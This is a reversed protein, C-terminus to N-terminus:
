QQSYYPIRIKFTSGKKIESKVEITGKHAMVVAKVYNLGLGFGKTDHLNGTSLRFFKDFIRKQTERAMGIGNDEVDIILSGSKNYTSVKIDPADPSYKNANDLLNNIVNGFHVEDGYIMHNEATGNWTLSGHRETIQIRFRDILKGIVDHADFVGPNMKFDEKDMLAANLVKQVQLNMRNNEEKIVSTYHKLKDKNELVRPDNIADTALSITAIPTKFEHTMNNIFDNKMESLKKQKLLTYITFGCSIIIILMFALLGPLIMGISRIIFSVKGPFYVSLFYNQPPMDDPFLKVMFPTSRLMSTDIGANAFELAGTQKNLVAAQYSLDIGRQKLEHNLFSDILHQSLRKHIDRNKNIANMILKKLMRNYINAKAMMIKGSDSPFSDKKSFKHNSGQWHMHSGSDMNAKGPNNSEDKRFPNDTMNKRRKHNHLGFKSHFHNGEKLRKNFFSDLSKRNVSDMEPLIKPLITMAEHVQIKDSVDNIAEFVQSDFQKSRLNIAGSIWLLQLVIIGSLSVAMAIVAISIKRKM